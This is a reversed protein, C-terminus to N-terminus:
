GGNPTTLTAPDVIRNIKTQLNSATSNTPIDLVQAGQIDNQQFHTVQPSFENKKKEYIRYTRSVAGFASVLGMDGNGLSEETIRFIEGGSRIAVEGLVGGIQDSTENEDVSM